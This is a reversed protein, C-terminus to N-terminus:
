RELKKLKRGLSARDLLVLFVSVTVLLFTVGIEISWM